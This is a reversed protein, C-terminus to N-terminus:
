LENVKIGSEVTIKRGLKDFEIVKNMSSIDVYIDAENTIV